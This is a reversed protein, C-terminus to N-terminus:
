AEKLQSKAADASLMPTDEEWEIRSAIFKKKWGDGGFSASCLSTERIRYAASWLRSIGDERTAVSSIVEGLCRQAHRALAISGKTSGKGSTIQLVSALNGDKKACACKFQVYDELPERRNVNENTWNSAHYGADKTESGTWSVCKRLAPLRLSEWGRWRSRVSLHIPSCIKYAHVSQTDTDPKQLYCRPTKRLETDHNHGPLDKFRTKYHINASSM